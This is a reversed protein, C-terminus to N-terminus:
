KRSFDDSVVVHHYKTMNKQKSKIKKKLPFEVISAFGKSTKADEEPKTISCCISPHQKCMFLANFKISMLGQGHTVTLLRFISSITYMTISM